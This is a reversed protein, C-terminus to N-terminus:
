VQHKKKEVAFSVAMWKMRQFIVVLNNWSFHMFATSRLDEARRQEAKRLSPFHLICINLSPLARKGNSNLVHSDRLGQPIVQRYRCLCPFKITSIVLIQM